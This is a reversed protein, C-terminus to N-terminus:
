KAFFRGLLATSLVCRGVPDPSSDVRCIMSFNFADWGKMDEIVTDFCGAAHNSIGIFNSWVVISNAIESVSDKGWPCLHDGSVTSRFVLACKPAEAAIM